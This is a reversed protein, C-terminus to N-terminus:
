GRRSLSNINSIKNEVMQRARAGAQPCEELGQRIKSGLSPTAVLGVSFGTSPTTVLAHM